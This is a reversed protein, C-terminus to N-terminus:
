RRACELIHMIKITIDYFDSEVWGRTTMAPSGIRIGSTEVPSRTDNPLMNKNVIIGENELLQEAERGTLGFSEYTNLLVQHNETFGVLKHGAADFTEYMVSANHAVQIMYDVYDERLAEGFCVAKAAIVHLLPGGQIGPFIASDIKKAVDADNTLILGGRPGRLTKHTTTTVVDAGWKLPNAHLKAAVFGAFHAMDVMLKAGVSHAVDAIKMYTAEDIRGVCASYGIVVLKLDPITRIQEVVQNINITGDNFVGYHHFDYIKGSANAKHGHTLHGGCDLSMALVSDGPKLLAQYVAQNAQSGSHPQVNAFKADFLIKARSIALSEIDDAFVCGGYYRKGPYGEAYKNTFISGQATQVDDSVYNESAILCVEARQRHYENAIISQVAQDIM